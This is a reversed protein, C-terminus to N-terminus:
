TKSVRQMLSDKKAKVVSLINEATLWEEVDKNGLLWKGRAELLGQKGGYSLNLCVADFLFKGFHVAIIQEGDLYNRDYLHAIGLETLGADLKKMETM